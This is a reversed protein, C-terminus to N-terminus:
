LHQDSGGDTSVKVMQDGPMEVMGYDVFATLCVFLFSFILLLVFPSFFPVKGFLFSVM